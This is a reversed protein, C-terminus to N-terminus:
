RRGDSVNREMQLEQVVPNSPLPHIAGTPAFGAALYLARARANTEAVWLRQRRAGRSMAWEKAAELLQSALGRRRAEPAVWVSVVEGIDPADEQIYSGTMGLWVDTTVEVAVVLVSEIGAANQTVRDVWASWPRAEAAALSDSFADPSDALARLRFARYVEIEDPRVWRISVDPDAYSM